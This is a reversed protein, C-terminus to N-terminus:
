ICEGFSITLTLSTSAVARRIAANQPFTAPNSLQNGYPVHFCEQAFALDDAM